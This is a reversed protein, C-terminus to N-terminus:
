EAFVTFTKSPRLKDRLSTVCKNFEHLLFSDRNRLAVEENACSSYPNLVTINFIAESTSLKRAM